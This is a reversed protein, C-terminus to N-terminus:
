GRRSQWLRQISQVSHWLVVSRLQNWRIPEIFLLGSVLSFQFVRLDVANLLSGNQTHNVLVVDSLQRENISGDLSRFGAESGNEVLVILAVVLWVPLGGVAVVKAVLCLWILITLLCIKVVSLSNLTTQTGGSWEVLLTHLDRGAEAAFDVFCFVRM